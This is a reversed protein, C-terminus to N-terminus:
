AATVNITYELWEGAQTQTLMYGTASDTDTSADVDTSWYPHLRGPGNSADNDHWSIGEDGHDPNEAEIRSTLTQAAGYYPFQDTFARSTLWPSFTGTAGNLFVGDGTGPGEGSPGSAAGWWNNSATIT